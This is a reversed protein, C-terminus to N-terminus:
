LPLHEKLDEGEWIGGANGWKLIYLEKWFYQQVAQGDIWMATAFVSM